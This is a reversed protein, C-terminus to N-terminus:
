EIGTWHPLYYDSRNKSFHRDFTTNPRPYGKYYVVQGGALFASWWGFTGGNIISHNCAALIGLDVIPENLSDCFHVKVTKNNKDLPLSINQRCWVMDDSCIIFNINKFREIFHQMAREVFNEDGTRFGLKYLSKKTVMDGRRVHVGVFTIEKDTNNAIINDYFTKVKSAIIPRFTFSQRVEALVDKFYFWSQLYGFLKVYRRAKWHSKFDYVYTDFMCNHKAIIRPWVSTNSFYKIELFFYETLNLHNNVVLIRNNHKAIGYASAYQFMQNGLRGSFVQWSLYNVSTQKTANVSYRVTNTATVPALIKTGAETVTSLMSTVAETVTTGTFAIAATVVKNMNALKVQFQRNIEAAPVGSHQVVYETFRLDFVFCPISLACLLIILYFSLRVNSTCLM